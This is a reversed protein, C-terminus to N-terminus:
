FSELFHARPLGEKPRNRCVSQHQKRVLQGVFSSTSFLYQFWHPLDTGITYYLWRVQYGYQPMLYSRCFVLGLMHWRKGQSKRDTKEAQLAAKEEISTVGKGITVSKLDECCYFAEKEISIVSDPIIVGALGGYYAFAGEGIKIVNYSVSEYEVFDPIIIVIECDDWEDYYDTGCILVVTGTNGNQTLVKYKLEGAIFEDGISNGADNMIM